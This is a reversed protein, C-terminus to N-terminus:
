CNLNFLIVSRATMTFLLMGDMVHVTCFKLEHSELDSLLPVHRMTGTITIMTTITTITIM